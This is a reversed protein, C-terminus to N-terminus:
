RLDALLRYPNWLLLQRGNQQSRDGVAQLQFGTEIAAADAAMVVVVVAAVAATGPTEM